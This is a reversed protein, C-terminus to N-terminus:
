KECTEKALYVFEEPKNIFDALEQSDSRLFSLVLFFLISNKQAQFIGYFQQQPICLHIFDLIQVTLEELHTNAKFADLTFTPLLVLRYLSSIFIPLFNHLLLNFLSQASNNNKSNKKFLVQVIRNYITFIISKMENLRNDVEARGSM